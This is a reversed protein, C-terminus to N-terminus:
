ARTRRKAKGQGQRAAPQPQAPSSAHWAAVVSQAAEDVVGVVYRESTTLRAHLMLKKLGILNRSRRWAESGFSHRLDYPRIRRPLTITSPDRGATVAQKRLQALLRDQATAWCKHFSSTSFSGDAGADFFTQLANAADPLLPITEGKVGKGKRRPQVTLTAAARNFHIRRVKMLLAPPLGTWLMVRARAKSKSMGPRQQDKAAQGRDPMWAIIAELLAYPHDRPEPDPERLKRIGDTPNSEDEGDLERYVNRLVRVRHNVSSASVGAETWTAMQAKVHSKTVETRPLPAIPSDLWHQALAADDKRRRGTLTALYRPLDTALSGHAPALPQAALLVAKTRLQWGRMVDLDTGHPYWKEKQEGGAKAIVRIRTKHAYIFPALTHPKGKRM